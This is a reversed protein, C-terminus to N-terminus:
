AGGDKEGAGFRAAHRRIAAFSAESLDHELRCADEAATQPDVGLATM